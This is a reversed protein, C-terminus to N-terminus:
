ESSSESDMLLTGKSSVPDLGTHCQESQIENCNSYNMFIQASYNRFNKLKWLMVLYDNNEIAIRKNDFYNM